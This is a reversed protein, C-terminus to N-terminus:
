HKDHKLKLEFNNEGYSLLVRTPEIATVTLEGFKGGIGIIRNNIMAVSHSGSIMVSQLKLGNFTENVQHLQEAELTDNNRAAAIPDKPASASVYAEEGFPNSQLESSHKVKSEFINQCIDLLKDTDKLIGQARKPDDKQQMLATIAGHVQSEIAVQEASATRPKNHLGLLYIVALAAAFAGVLALTSGNVKSKPTEPYAEAGEDGGSTGLPMQVDESTEENKWSQESM